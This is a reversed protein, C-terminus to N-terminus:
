ALARLVGGSGGGIELVYPSVEDATPLHGARIAGLVADLDRRLTVRVARSDAVARILAAEFALVDAFGPLPVEREAAFEAFALAEDSPFLRAPEAAVYADLLAATGAEGLGLFLLRVSNELLEAIAGRRFSAVLRLCLAFSGADATPLAAMSPPRLHAPLMRAAIEQEWAAPRLGRGGDRERPVAPRIASGAREWLQHLTEMERLVAADGFAGIRDAALEFVIAGLNPLEAVIEAALAAMERDIGGAHADLWAGHGFDPGSLHVEWVRERPLHRM